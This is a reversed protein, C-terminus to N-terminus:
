RGQPKEHALDPLEKRVKQLAKDIEKDSVGYKEQYTEVMKRLGVLMEEKM